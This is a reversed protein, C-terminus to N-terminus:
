GGSTRQAHWAKIQDPTLQACAADAHKAYAYAADRYAQMAEASQDRWYFQDARQMHVDAAAKFDGAAALIDGKAKLAGVKEAFEVLDDTDAERPDKEADEEGGEAEARAEAKAVLSEVQTQLSTLEALEQAESEGDPAEEAPVAGLGEEADLIAKADKNGDDALKRYLERNKM